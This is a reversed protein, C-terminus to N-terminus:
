LRKNPGFVEAESNFRGADGKTGPVGILGGGTWWRPWLPRASQSVDSPRNRM